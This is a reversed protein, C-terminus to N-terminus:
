ILLMERLVKNKASFLLTICLNFSSQYSDAWFLCEGRERLVRNCGREVIQLYTGVGTEM